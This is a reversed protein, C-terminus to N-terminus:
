KSSVLNSYAVMPVKVVKSLTENPVAEVRTPEENRVKEFETFAKPRKVNRIGAPAEPVYLCACEVISALVDATDMQEVADFLHSPKISM